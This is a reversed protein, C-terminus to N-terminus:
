TSMYKQIEKEISEDTSMKEIESLVDYAGDDVGNVENEIEAARADTEVSQVDFALGTRSSSLADGVEKRLRALDHRIEACQIAGEAAAIKTSAHNINSLLQELVLSTQEVAKELMMMKSEETQLAVVCKRVTAEDKNAGAQKAAKHLLRINEKISIIEKQKSENTAKARAYRKVYQAYKHKYKNLFVESETYGFFKYVSRKIWEVIKSM